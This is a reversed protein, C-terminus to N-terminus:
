FTIRLFRLVHNIITGAVIAYATVSAVIAAGSKLGREKIIVFINAICPVFLTMVMMGVFAQLNDLLGKDFLAFLGAAGYDRRLMGMIFAEASRAPLHFLGVVVPSFLRILFALVGTLDAFFLFATGMLFWPIAERIFWVARFFTKNMLNDLRPVRYPPLETIFVSPSGPLIRSALYGVLLMQLVLLAFFLIMAEAGIQSFIGLIIGLQASCPIGLALLLTAIVRERKTELVRTVLAAMTGCGFGLVMPIVAKGNLGVRSFSRNLMVALRPLYGSDELFSFAIFFATVIPLVIALAYTLGMTIQGYEGVFFNRVTEFPIFSFLKIVPPLLYERFLVNQVFDVVVGAAFVGVFEYLGFLVFALLVYGWLPHSSFREFRTMLEMKLGAGERHTMCERVLREVVASRANLIVQYLPEAYQVQTQSLIEKVARRNEKSVTSLIEEIMGLTGSLLILAVFRKSVAFEPLHRSIELVAMEIRSDYHIKLSSKSPHRLAEILDDKGRKETAVTLIVPVGLHRSLAATNIRYGKKEAEDAMNLDLVMPLEAEALSLFFFLTRRLNKADGVQLVAAIGESLLARFTVFEDESRPLINGVGPADVVFYDLDLAQGSMIEVTTGPYNSVVVYRGTLLKFIVSKGINPQGVLLLRNSMIENKSVSRAPMEHHTM